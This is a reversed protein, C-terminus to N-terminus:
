YYHVLLRIPLRDNNKTDTNTIEPLHLWYQLFHGLLTM